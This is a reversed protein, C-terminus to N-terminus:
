ILSGDKYFLYKNLKIDEIIENMCYEAIYQGVFWPTLMREAEDVAKEFNGKNESNYERCECWFQIHDNIVRKKAEESLEEFEYAEVTYHIIRM